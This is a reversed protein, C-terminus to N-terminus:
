ALSPAVHCDGHDATYPKHGVTRGGILILSNRAFDQQAKKLLVMNGGEEETLSIIPKNLNAAVEILTIISPLTLGYVIRPLTM